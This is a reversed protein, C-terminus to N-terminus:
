PAVRERATLWGMTGELWEVYDHEGLHETLLLLQRAEARAAAWRKSQLARMLNMRAAAYDTQVRTSLGLVASETRAVDAQSGAFRYRSSAEQYHHLAAIGDRPDYPYRDARLRGRAELERGLERAPTARPCKRAPQFLMPADPALAAVSPRSHGLTAWLALAGGVGVLILGLRWANGARLVSSPGELEETM